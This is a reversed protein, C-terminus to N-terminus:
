PMVKLDNTFNFSYEEEAHANHDLQVAVSNSFNNENNKNNKNNENNENNENNKNNENNENM